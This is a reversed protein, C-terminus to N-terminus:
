GRVRVASAAVASQHHGREVSGRGGRPEAEAESEAHDVPRREAHEDDTADSDREDSTRVGSGLLGLAPEPM